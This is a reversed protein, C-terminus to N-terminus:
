AGREVRGVADAADRADVRVEVALVGAVADEARVELPLAGAGDSLSCPERRSIEVARLIITRRSTEAAM